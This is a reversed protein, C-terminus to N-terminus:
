MRMRPKLLMSCSASKSLLDRFCTYMGLFFRVDVLVDKLQKRVEDTPPVTTNDQKITSNSEEFLPLKPIPTDGEDAQSKKEEDPTEPSELSDPTESAEESSNINPTTNNTNPEMQQAERNGNANSSGREDNTSEEEQSSIFQNAQLPNADIDEQPQGVINTDVDQPEFDNERSPEIEDSAHTDDLKAADPSNEIGSESSDFHSSVEEDKVDTTEELDETRGEQIQTSGAEINEGLSKEDNDDTVASEKENDDNEERNSEWGFMDDELEQFYIELDSYEDTEKLASSHQGNTSDDVQVNEAQSTDPPAEEGLLNKLKQIDTSSSVGENDFNSKANQGDEDSAVEHNEVTNHGELECKDEVAKSTENLMGEINSESSLNDVAEGGQNLSGTNQEKSGRDGEDVHINNIAETLQNSHAENVVINTGKSTAKRGSKVDPFGVDKM